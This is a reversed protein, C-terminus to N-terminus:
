PWSLVEFWGSAYVTSIQLVSLLFSVKQVGRKHCVFRKWLTPLEARVPSLFQGLTRTTPCGKPEGLHSLYLM